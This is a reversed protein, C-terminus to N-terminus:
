KRTAFWEAVAQMDEDSMGRAKNEMIKNFRTGDRFGKLAAVIEAPDAGHFETGHCKCGKALAEGRAMDAAHATRAAPPAPAAAACLLLVAAVFLAAPRKM